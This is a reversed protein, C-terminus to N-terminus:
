AFNIINVIHPTILTDNHSATYAYDRLASALNHLSVTGCTFIKLRAQVRVVAACPVISSYSM